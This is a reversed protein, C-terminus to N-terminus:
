GRIAFFNFVREGDSNGHNGKEELIEGDGHGCWRRKM